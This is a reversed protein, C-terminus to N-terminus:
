MHDSPQVLKRPFIIRCCKLHHICHFWNIKTSSFYPCRCLGCVSSLTRFCWKVICASNCDWFVKVVLGGQNIGLHGYQVLGVISIIVFSALLPGLTSMRIPEQFFHICSLSNAFHGCTVIFHFKHQLNLWVTGMSKCYVYIICPPELHITNHM